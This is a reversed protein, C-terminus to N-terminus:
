APAQEARGADGSADNGRQARGGAVLQRGDGAAGGLLRLRVRLLPADRARDRRVLRHEGIGVDVDDVNRQRIMQVRFPRDLRRFRAFVHEAFLRDRQGDVVDIADGRGRRTVADDDGFREHVPMMRLRHHQLLQQPLARDAFQAVDAAAERERQVPRVVHAEIRRAAAAAQPVDAAIRHAERAHERAHLRAFHEAARLEAGVPM